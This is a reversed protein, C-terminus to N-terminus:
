VRDVTTRPERSSLRDGGPLPPSLDDPRYTGIVIARPWPQAVLRAIVAVSEAAAWHLDELIRVAPREGGRGRVQETGQAVADAGAVSERLLDSVLSFPRTIGSPDGNGVLVLT